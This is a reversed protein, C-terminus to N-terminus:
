FLLGKSRAGDAVAKVRGHYKKDRRDFVVKTIGKEKAESALLVGVEKAVELNIKGEYKKRIKKNRSSVAVITIGKNDDIIQAYINNIGRYVSLRPIEKTGFVRRINKKKM